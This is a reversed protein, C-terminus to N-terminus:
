KVKNIKLMISPSSINQINLTKFASLGFVFKLFSPILKYDCRNEKKFFLKLVLKFTFSNPNLEFCCLLKNNRTSIFNGKPGREIATILVTKNSSKYQGTKEDVYSYNLKLIDGPILSLLSGGYRKLIYNSNEVDSDESGEYENSNVLEQQTEPPLSKTFFPLRLRRLM